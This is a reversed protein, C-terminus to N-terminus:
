LLAPVERIFFEKVEDWTIPALMHPMPDKEADEFYVLSKLVHVINFNIRAFKTKFCDMLDKLLYQRSSVFLDVFDRKTGRGSIANIKMCAIDRPDAVPMGTYIESSFLLPYPYGLFSLKIGEITLHLTERDISVVALDEIRSLGSLLAKEDFSHKFFDLDRSIRHGVNLAMGTGGALYFGQLDERKSLRGMVRVAGSPMVEEHWAKESNGKMIDRGEM